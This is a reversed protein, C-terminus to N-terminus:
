PALLEAREEPSIAIGITALPDLIDRVVVEKAVPAFSAPGLWGLAVLEAAPLSPLAAGCRRGEGGAGPDRRLGHSTGAQAAMMVARHAREIASSVGRASSRRTM